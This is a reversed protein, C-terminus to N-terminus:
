HKRRRQSNFKKSRSKSFYSKRKRPLTMRLVKITKFKNRVYREASEQTFKYCEIRYNQFVRNIYYVRNLPDYGISEIADDLLTM